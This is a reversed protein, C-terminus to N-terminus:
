FSSWTTGQFEAVNKVSVRKLFVKPCSSRVHKASNKWFILNNFYVILLKKSNSPRINKSANKTM